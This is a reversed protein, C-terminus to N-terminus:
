ILELKNLMNINCSPQRIPPIYLTTLRSIVTNPLDKLPIKTIKSSIHPYQSGEYLIVEHQLDYCKSLYDVLAQIGRNNDHKYKNELLGIVSIQWLILHSCGDFSRRYILFDTAEYSQCGTSGPDIHIDAFLYDEASIGPLIIAKYGKKKAEVVADLAPKAFVTPHGELVVCVHQGKQLEHLITNTMENYSDIRFTHSNYANELSQSSPNCKILWEKMAPENVLFLIKESKEICNKAEITLHSMFKIGSGVVTLSGKKM